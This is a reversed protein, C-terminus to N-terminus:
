TMPLRSEFLMLNVARPPQIRTSDRGRRAGGDDAHDIGAGPDVGGHQRSHELWPLLLLPRSAAPHAETERDGAVQDLEVIAADARAAVALSPAGGDLDPQGRRRVAASRTVDILVKMVAGGGLATEM